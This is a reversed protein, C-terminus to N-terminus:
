SCSSRLHLCRGGCVPWMARASLLSLPWLMRCMQPQPMTPLRLLRRDKMASRSRGARQNHRRPRRPSPSRNLIVPSCPPPLLSQAYYSGADAGAGGPKVSVWSTANLIAPAVTINFTDGTAGTLASGDGSVLAPQTIAGGFQVTLPLAPLPGGGCFINGAGINSLAALASQVDSAAADYALPPTTQGAYSLTFTGGTPPQGSQSGPTILIGQTFKFNPAYAPQGPAFSLINNESVTFGFYETGTLGCLLRSSISGDGQSGLGAGKIGLTFDGIPILYYPDTINPQNTSPNVAFVLKATDAALLTVTQGIHSSFYSVIPTSTVPTTSGAQGTFSFFNREPDPVFIRTPSNNITTSAISDLSGMMGRPSGTATLNFIPYRQSSLNSSNAQDVFYRLGVDLQDIDAEQLTVQFQLCGTGEGTLPLYAAAGVVGLNPKLTSTLFIPNVQENAISFQDNAPDSVPCNQSIYLGLNRYQFTQQSGIFANDPDSPTGPTGGIVLYILNLNSANPDDVWAFGQTYVM